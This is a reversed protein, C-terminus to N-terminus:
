LEHYFKGSPHFHTFYFYSLSFDSIGFGDSAKPIEFPNSVFADYHASTLTRQKQDWENSLHLYAFSKTNERQLAAKDKSVKIITALRVFKAHSLFVLPQFCFLPCSIQGQLANKGALSLYPNSNYLNISSFCKLSFM